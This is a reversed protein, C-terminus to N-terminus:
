ETIDDDMDSTYWKSFAEDSMDYDLWYREFDVSDPTDVRPHRQLFDSLSGSLGVTNSGNMAPTIRTSEEVAVHSNTAQSQLKLVESVDTISESSSDDESDISDRLSMQLIEQRVEQGVKKITESHNSSVESFDSDSGENVERVASMQHATHGESRIHSEKKLASHRSSIGHAIQASVLLNKSMNRLNCIANADWNSSMSSLIKKFESRFLVSADGKLKIRAEMEDFMDKLPREARSSIALYHDMWLILLPRVTILDDKIRNRIHDLRNVFSRKSDSFSEKYVSHRGFSQTHMKWYLSYMGWKDWGGWEGMEKVQNALLQYEFAVNLHGQIVEDIKSWDLERFISTDSHTPVTDFLQTLDDVMAQVYSLLVLKPHAEHIVECLTPGSKQTYQQEVLLFIDQRRYDNCPEWPITKMKQSIQPWQAHRQSRGISRSEWTEKEIVPFELHDITRIHCTITQDILEHILQPRVWTCYNALMNQAYKTGDSVMESARVSLLSTLAVESTKQLLLQSHELDKFTACFNSSHKQSDIDRINRVVEERQVV